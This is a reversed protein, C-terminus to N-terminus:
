RRYYRLSGGEKAVRGDLSYRALNVGGVYGLALSM